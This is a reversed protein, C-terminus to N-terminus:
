LSFFAGVQFLQDDAVQAVLGGVAVELAVHPRIRLPCRQLSQILAIGADVQHGLHLAYAINVGNLTLAAYLARHQRL